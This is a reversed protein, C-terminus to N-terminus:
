CERQLMRELLDNETFDSTFDTRELDTIPPIKEGKKELFDRVAQHMWRLLLSREEWIPACAKRITFFTLHVNQLDYKAREIPNSLKDGIKNINVQKDIIKRKEEENRVKLRQRDLDGYIKSTKSRIESADAEPSVGLISYDSQVGLNVMFM